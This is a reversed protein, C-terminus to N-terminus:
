VEMTTVKINNPYQQSLLSLHLWLSTIFAEAAHNPTSSLEIGALDKGIVVEADKVALIETIGNACLQFASTVAACVVDKGIDAFDAHGSLTVLRFADGSKVFEAAIM